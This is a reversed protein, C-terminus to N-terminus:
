LEDVWAKLYKAERVVLNPDHFCNALLSIGQLAALLHVALSRREAERGLAAFHGELWALLNRFPTAAEDGLSGADKSLEACLSGVPCGARALIDRSDVTIQIFAKLRARPSSAADCAEQVSQLEAARRAIVAEGIAAKTKFYYYVNGLPVDANEAIDALSVKGLGRVHSLDAAARILRSRKDETIRTM